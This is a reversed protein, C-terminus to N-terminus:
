QNVKLSVEVLAFFTQPDRISALRALPVPAGRAKLSLSFNRPNALFSQVGQALSLSQPDGGLLLPLLQVAMASVESRLAAPSKGQKAAAFAFSKEVLGDNSFGVKLSEVSAGLLALGRQSADGSSLAAPDVGSMDGAVSLRGAQPSAVSYDELVLRQGAPDYRGAGAVAVELREYGFARLGKGMESAPPPDFVFGSAEGKSRVPAGGNFETTMTLGRLSVKILNGGPAGAPTDPDSFASEFGDWSISAVQFGAADFNKTQVANLLPGFDGQELQLKRGTLSGGGGANKFEGSFGSLVAQAFRGKDIGRAEMQGLTLKGDEGDVTAGGISLRSAKLRAALAVSEAEPTEASLLKVLEERSLNTDAVDIQRLTLVTKGAADRSSLEPISLNNQAFAPAALGLLAAAAFLRPIFTM